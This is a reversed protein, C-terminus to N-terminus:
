ASEGGLANMLEQKLSNRTKTLNALLEQYKALLEEPDGHGADGNNPNKIDLNYGNSKIEEVPVKWAFDSTERNEWWVKETEFEEIRM